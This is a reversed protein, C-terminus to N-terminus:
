AAVTVNDLTDGMLRFPQGIDNSSLYPWRAELYTRFTAFGAGQPINAMWRTYGLAKMPAVMDKLLNRIALLGAAGSVGFVLRYLVIKETASNDGYVVVCANITGANDNVVCRTGPGIFDRVTLDDSLSALPSALFLAKLQTRDAAVALRITM